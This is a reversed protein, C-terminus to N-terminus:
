PSTSGIRKPEFAIRNWILRIWLGLINVFEGVARSWIKTDLVAYETATEATHARHRAGRRILNWRSALYGFDCQGAQVAENLTRSSARNVEIERSMRWARRIRAEDDIPCDDAM